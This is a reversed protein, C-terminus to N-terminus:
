GCYGWCGCGCYGWWGCCRCCGCCRVCDSLPERTGPQAQGNIVAMASTTPARPPTSPPTATELEIFGPVTLLMGTIPVSLPAAAGSAAFLPLTLATAALSSGLVTCIWALPPASPVVDPPAVPEPNTSSLFFWTIVLLWTTASAVPLPWILTTSWFPLFNAAFIM